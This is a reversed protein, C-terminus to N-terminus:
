QCQQILSCSNMIHHLPIEVEFLELNTDYAITSWEVLESPQKVLIQIPVNTSCPLMSKSSTATIPWENPPAVM